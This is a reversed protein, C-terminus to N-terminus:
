ATPIGLLESTVLCARSTHFSASSRMGVKYNTSQVTSGVCFHPPDHPSFYSFYRAGLAEVAAKSGAQPDLVWITSDALSRAAM